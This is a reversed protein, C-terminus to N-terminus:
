TRCRKAPDSSEAGLSVEGSATSGYGGNGIGNFKGNWGAFPLRVEFKISSDGTPTAAGNV